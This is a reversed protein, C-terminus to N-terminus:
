RRGWYGPHHRWGGPGRDWRHPVWYRGAPPLAWRGGIWVHRNVQWNWYGGIWVYGVAPAVPIVEYQPPPPAYEIPPGPPGAEYPTPVSRYPGGVPAVICGSLATAALVTLVFVGTRGAASNPLRM